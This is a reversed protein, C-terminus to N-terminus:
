RGRARLAADLRPYVRRVNGEDVATRARPDISSAEVYRRTAEDLDPPEASQGAADVDAENDSQGFGTYHAHWAEAEAETWSGPDPATRHHGIVGRQLDYARRSVPDRLVAYAQNLVKAREHLAAALRPEGAARDPHYKKMLQRYAAEIVEPDADERVQLMAYHDPPRQSVPM